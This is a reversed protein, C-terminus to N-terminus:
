GTGNADDVPTDIVEVGAAQKAQAIERRRVLDNFKDAPMTELARSISSSLAAELAADSLQRVQQESDIRPQDLGAFRGMAILGRISAGHDKARRAAQIEDHLEALVNQPLTAMTANVREAIRARMGRLVAVAKHAMLGYATRLHTVIEMDTPFKRTGRKDRDYLFEVAAEVLAEDSVQVLSIASSSKGLNGEPKPFPKDKRASAPKVETPVRKGNVGM